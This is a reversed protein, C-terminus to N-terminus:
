KSSIKILLKISLSYFLKYYSSIDTMFGTSLIRSYFPEGLLKIFMLFTTQYLVTLFVLKFCTFTTFGFVFASLIKFYSFIGILDDTNFCVCFIVQSAMYISAAAVSIPSRGPVIDLEVAKRAIHTAARQVMNPLSLNSCFRSM